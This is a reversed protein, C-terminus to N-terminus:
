TSTILDYYEAQSMTSRKPQEPQQASDDVDLGIVNRISALHMLKDIDVRWGKAAKDWKGGCYQKIFHRVDYTDGTLLDGNLHLQKRDNRGSYTFNTTM